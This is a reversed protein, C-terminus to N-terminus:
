GCAPRGIPEVLVGAGDVIAVYKEKGLLIENSGLDGDPGGTQLKRVQTDDLDLKRYIGSVYERVCLATMAYKNHPFGGLKYSPLHQLARGSVVARSAVTAAVKATAVRAQSSNAHAEVLAFITHKGQDGQYGGGPTRRWNNGGGGV